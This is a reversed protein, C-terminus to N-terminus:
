KEAEESEKKAEDYKKLRAQKTKEQVSHHLRYKIALWDTLYIIFKIISAHHDLVKWDALM